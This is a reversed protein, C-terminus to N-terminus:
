GADKRALAAALSTTASGRRAPQPQDPSPAWGSLHIIQLREPVKGDPDAGAAFAAQAAAYGFRGIPRRSRASLLNTWGLARLDAVLQPLGPYRLTLPEADVVPLAFGARALLDGAARLDIQPHLRPSAPREEAEDAAAMARRLGPLSGAGALAGLFLGDPRLLRRIQILAGPLDNVSDLTGASVVLDFAGAEFPLRDEDCRTGGIAGAFVAGADASTVAMGRERLAATLLGPGCGLDLAREFRRTVIDLREILDDALRRLLPNHAPEGMAARDRRLRRLRRDFPTNELAPDAAAPDTM